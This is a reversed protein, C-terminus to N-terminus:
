QIPNLSVCFGAYGENTVYIPSSIRIKSKKSLATNLNANAVDPSIGYACLVEASFSQLSFGLLLFVALLQLYKM